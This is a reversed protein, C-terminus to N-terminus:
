KPYPVRMKAENMRRLIDFNLESRLKEAMEVDDVFCVLQFKLAWEAFAHFLVTPAPIAMVLSQAKAADIMLQRAAEADSEYAVNVEVVIRAVRDARVWNKVPASVLLSNPVILTVRDLTEIETARASIRRM